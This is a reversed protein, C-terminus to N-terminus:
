FSAVLPVLMFGTIMFRRVVRDMEFDHRYAFVIYLHLGSTGGTIQTIIM